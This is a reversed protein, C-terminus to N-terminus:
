APCLALNGGVWAHPRHDPRFLDRVPCLRQALPARSQKSASALAIRLLQAPEAAPETPGGISDTAEPASQAL